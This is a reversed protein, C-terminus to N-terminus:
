AHDAGTWEEALLGYRLDDVWDAGTWISKRFLGEKRMGMKELLRVSATNKPDVSAIVRHKGLNRFAHDLLAHVAETAYGNRQHSPSITFGIEIQKDDPPLFHVGMDGILELSNKLYIGLQCWTDKVNFGTRNVKRIFAEVEQESKPQWSQYKGVEPSSRYFFMTRADEPKLEGLILRDTHIRPAEQHIV